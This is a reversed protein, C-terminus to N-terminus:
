LRFKSIYQMQKRLFNTDTQDSWSSVSDPAEGSLGFLIIQSSCVSYKNGLFDANALQM